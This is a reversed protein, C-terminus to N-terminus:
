NNSDMTTAIFLIGKYKEKLHTRDISIVPRCYAHFDFICADFAMFYIEFINDKDVQLKTVTRLNQQELMYFYSPLMQFSDLSSWIGSKSCIRKNKLSQQIRDRYQSEIENRRYCRSTLYCSM